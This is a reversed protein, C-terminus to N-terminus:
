QKVEKFETDIGFNIMQNHSRCKSRFNVCEQLTWYNCQYNPPIVNDFFCDNVKVNWIKLLDLKKCCDNYSIKWDCLIFVSITKPDYGVSKLLKITEKMKMQLNFSHDWAFRIEKFRNRKLASALELTLYRYDIGCTLTYNVVKNNVRIRGLEEIIELARPKYLLNMDLIKVENRVIEPIELYIPDTGCEFSEACYPCKNPCGESIRIFQQEDDYRNYAGRNYPVKLKYESTQEKNIKEAM